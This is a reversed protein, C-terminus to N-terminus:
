ICSNVMAVYFCHTMYTGLFWLIEQGVDHEFPILRGKQLLRKKAYSGIFKRLLCHICSNLQLINTTALCVKKEEKSFPPVYRDCIHM